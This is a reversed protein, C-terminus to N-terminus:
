VRGHNFSQILNGTCLTSEGGDVGFLRSDHYITAPLLHQPIRIEGIDCQWVCLTGMTPADMRCTGLARWLYGAVAVTMVPVLCVFVCNYLAICSVVALCARWHGGALAVSAFHVELDWFFGRGATRRHVLPAKGLLLLLAKYVGM